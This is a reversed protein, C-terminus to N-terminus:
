EAYHGFVEPHIIRSFTDLTETIRQSPHVVFPDSVIIVRDSKVAEIQALAQWVARPDGAREASPKHVIDIIVQPNADVVAEQQIKSYGHLDNPAINQGGSATILEDLFSGPSASYIDKLTGPLRDVVCLVRLQPLAATEKTRQAIRRQLEEALREGEAGHGTERGITSISDVIDAVSKNKVVLLPLRMEELKDKFFIAQDEILIILDPRMEAIAELNINFFGGVHPLRKAEEPSNCYESDAILSPFAGVGYIIETVGPSLSILRKRTATEKSEQFGRCALLAILALAAVAFRTHGATLRM